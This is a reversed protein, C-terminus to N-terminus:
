IMSSLDHLDPSVSVFYTGEWVGSLIQRPDTRCTRLLTGLNGTTGLGGRSELPAVLLQAIHRKVETLTALHSFPTSPALAAYDDLTPLQDAGRANAEERTEPTNPPPVPSPAADQWAFWILFTAM